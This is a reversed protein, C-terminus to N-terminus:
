EEQKNQSSPGRRIRTRPEGPSEKIKGRTRKSTAATGNAEDHARSARLRELLVSAPEDKPDQPVLRGEFAQKLISQRLRSARRLSHDIESDLAEIQSLKEAVEIVIQEQEVLPPLPILLKSFSEGTFHKITTGTFYRELRFTKAMYELFYVLYWPQLGKSCRVRHLAKQIKMGEIQNNWVAARGPEGGECVLVDGDLLSFREL